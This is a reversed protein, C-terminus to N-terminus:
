SKHCWEASKPSMKYGMPNRLLDWFSGPLWVNQTGRFLRLMPSSNQSKHCRKTSKPAMKAGMPNELPDLFRGNQFFFRLCIYFLLDLFCSQFFMIKRDNTWQIESLNQDIKQHKKWVKVMRVHLRRFIFFWQKEM